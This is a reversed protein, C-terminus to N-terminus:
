GSGVIVIRELERDGARRANSDLLENACSQLCLAAPFQQRLCGALYDLDCGRGHIGHAPPRATSSDVCGRSHHPPTSGGVVGERVARALLFFPRGGAMPPLPPTPWLGSGAAFLSSFSAM